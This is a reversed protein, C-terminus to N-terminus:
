PKKGLAKGLAVLARATLKRTAGPTRQMREAAAENSLGEFYRLLLVWRHDPELRQLAQEIRQRDEARGLATVPGTPASRPIEVAQRKRAAFHDHWDRLRNDALRCLWRFFAAKGTYEFQAFSRHAALYVEQLVDQPEIKAALGAGLRLRIYVLLPEIQLAFLREYAAAEGQRTCSWLQRAVSESM